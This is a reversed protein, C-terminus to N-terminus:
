TTENNNQNCYKCDYASQYNNSCQKCQASCYSCYSCYSCHVSTASLTKNSVTRITNDQVVIQPIVVSYATDTSSPGYSKNSSMTSNMRTRQETREKAIDVLNKGDIVVKSLFVENKM